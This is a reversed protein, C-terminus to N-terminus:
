LQIMSLRTPPKLLRSFYSRWHSPNEWINHVIFCTMYEPFHSVIVPQHNLGVGRFFYLDTPIIFNGVSHFFLGNMNWVVLWSYISSGGINMAEDSGDSPVVESKQIWAYRPQAVDACRLCNLYLLWIYDSYLFYWGGHNVAERRVRNESFLPYEYIIHEYKNLVNFEM